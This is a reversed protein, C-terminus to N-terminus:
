PVRLFCPRLSVINDILTKGVAVKLELQFSRRMELMRKRAESAGGEELTGYDIVCASKELIPPEQRKLTDVLYPGVVNDLWNYYM